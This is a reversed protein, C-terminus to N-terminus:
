MSSEKDSIEDFLLEDNKLYGVLFDTYCKAIKYFKDERAESFLYVPPNDGENLKFFCFLSGQSMFFVFVDEGLILESENESLLERAGETLKLLKEYYCDEGKMFKKEGVTGRGMCKLFEIFAIPLRKGKAVHNIEEESCPLMITEQEILRTILKQLYIINEM